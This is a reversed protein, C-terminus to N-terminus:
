FTGESVCDCLNRMIRDFVFLVSEGHQGCSLVVVSRSQPGMGEM